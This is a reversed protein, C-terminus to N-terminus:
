CEVFQLTLAQKSMFFCTKESWQAVVHNFVMDFFIGLWTKQELM